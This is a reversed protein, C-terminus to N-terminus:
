LFSCILQLCSDFFVGDIEVFLHIFSLLLFLLLLDLSLPDIPDEGRLHDVALHGKPPMDQLPTVM